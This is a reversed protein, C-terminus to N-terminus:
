PKDKLIDSYIDSLQKGISKYSFKNIFETRIRESDFKQFNDLMFNMKETLEIENGAEILIGNTENIHESIGGVNSSLVPKGCVLSESIVVPSNEINSFLVFFDSNQLWFAVDKPSKEGLFHIIDSDIKLTEAYAIIKDYDIGTGIIIIEFDKRKKSLELVCRLIGSINKVEDDFCSVHIIRKKLHKDASSNENFFSDEVVNNIVLYHSNYLNHKLMANKLNESVPLVAMSNKVVLKTIFKRLLGKYSNRNPLYRSWHETVIYPTGKWLKYLYAMFVTRTLINAHIIDPKFNAGHIKKIGIWFAKLYNYTREAKALGWSNNVPFYVYLEKLNESFNECIEFDLISHDPFVYLVQVNCYLSVAEAHKKVFLGYMKDYKHPYWHSIFLVNIM